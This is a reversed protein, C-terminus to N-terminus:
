ARPRLFPVLALPAIESGRLSQRLVTNSAARADRWCHAGLARVREEATADSSLRRPQPSAPSRSLHSTLKEKSRFSQKWSDFTEPVSRIAATAISRLPKAREKVPLAATNAMRSHRVVALPIRVSSKRITKQWPNRRFQDTPNQPRM